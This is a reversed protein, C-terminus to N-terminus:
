SPCGAGARLAAVIRGADRASFGADILAGLAPVLGAEGRALHRAARRLARAPEWTPEPLSPSM